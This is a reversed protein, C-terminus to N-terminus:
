NVGCHRRLSRVDDSFVLCNLIYIRVVPYIFYNFYYVRIFVHINFYIFSLFLISVSEQAIRLRNVEFTESAWQKAVDEDDTIILNDFLIDPSM